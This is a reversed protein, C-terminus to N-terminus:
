GSFRLACPDSVTVEPLDEMIVTGSDRGIAAVRRDHGAVFAFAQGEAEVAITAVHILVPGMCPRALVYMEPRDHGTVYLLGDPGIVGGSAAKPALRDLVDGPFLWGGTRRWEADYTAVNAYRANKMGNGGHDDYQAFGALWGGKYPNAWVLSGEDTLGLSKTGVHTMTATDFIEISSGMPVNPYNSNACVLRTDEVICSNIHRIRENAPGEWRAVVKGTGREHKVITHNDIAYFYDGDVAVGQDAAPAEFRHVTKASLQTVAQARAAVPALALILGALMASRMRDSASM